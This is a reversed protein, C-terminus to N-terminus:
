ITLQFTCPLITINIKQGKNKYKDFNSLYSFICVFYNRPKGITQTKTRSILAVLRRLYLRSRVIVIDNAAIPLTKLTKTWKLPVHKALDKVRIREDKEGDTAIKALKIEFAIIEAVNENLSHLRKTPYIHEITKKIWLDYAKLANPYRNPHLLIPIPLNLDGNEIQLIFLLFFTHM